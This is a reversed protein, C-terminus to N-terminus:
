RQAIWGQICPLSLTPQRGPSISAPSERARGRRWAGPMERNESRTRPAPGKRLCFTLPCQKRALREHQQEAEQVDDGARQPDTRGEEEAGEQSGRRRLHARAGPGRSVMRTFWRLSGVTILVSEPIVTRAPHIMHNRFM